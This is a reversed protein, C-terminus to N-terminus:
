AIRRQWATEGNFPTTPAFGLRAVLRAWGRRGVGWLAVCGRARAWPELTGLLAEGWRAADRGGILWLLCRREPTMDSLPVDHVLTVIAARVSDEHRVLWLQAEGRLLMAPLDPRDASRRLAPALLASAAPWVAAVDGPAIAMVRM